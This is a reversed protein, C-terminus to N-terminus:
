LHEKLFSLTREHSLRRAEANGAAPGSFGHDAAKYRYFEPKVGEGTLVTEVEEANAIDVLRDASGHHIQIHPATVPVTGLGTLYPAFFEVVARVSGRLRLSLYGGLSFGVLAVRDAKIGPLSRAEAVADALASQWAASHVLATQLVAAGPETGTRELYHPLLVAFGARSLSEAYERMMAAWPGTLHDTVGDAGHAVVVAAGRSGGMAPFYEAHVPVEGSSFVLTQAM